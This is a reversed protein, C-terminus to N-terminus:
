NQPSKFWGLSDATNGRPRYEASVWGQYGIADIHAFMAALDIDGTGPEHRGPADAFQIHGIAPLLRKLVAALDDGMIHMHYLDYQLMVNDMAVRDLIAMAKHSTDLLFGPADISNLPEVTLLLGAKAFETGAHRLNAVLTQECDRRDADPPLRGALCNCRPTGLQRAYLIAQTVSERFAAERGPLCAIGLDGNATDGASLNHLVPALGFADLRQKIDDAAFAYPFHYEVARFGARAALEFRDLFPVETWLFSLNAAYRPM